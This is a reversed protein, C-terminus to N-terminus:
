EQKRNLQPKNIEVTKKWPKGSQSGGSRLAIRIYGDTTVEIEDPFVYDKTDRSDMVKEYRVSNDSEKWVLYITDFGYDRGNEAMRRVVCVDKRNEPFTMQTLDYGLSPGLRDVLASVEGETLEDKTDHKM